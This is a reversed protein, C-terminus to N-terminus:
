SGGLKIPSGDANAANITQAAQRDQRQGEQTMKSPDTLDSARGTPLDPQLSDLIDSARRDSM